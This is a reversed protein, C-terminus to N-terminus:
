RAWRQDQHPGSKNFIWKKTLTSHASSHISFHVFRSSTRIPSRHSSSCQHRTPPCLFSLTHLPLPSLRGLLSCRWPFLVHALLLLLSKSRKWIGWAKWLEAVVCATAKALFESWGWVFWGKLGLRCRMRKSAKRDQGSTPLSGM